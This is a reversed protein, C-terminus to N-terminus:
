PVLILRIPDGIKHALRHVAKDAEAPLELTISKAPARPASLGFDWLGTPDKVLDETAVVTLPHAQSSVISPGIDAETLLDVEFRPASEDTTAAAYEEALASWLTDTWARAM